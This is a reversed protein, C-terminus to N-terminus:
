EHSWLWRCRSQQRQQRSRAAGVLWWSRSARAVFRLDCRYSARESHRRYQRHVSRHRQEEEQQVGQRWRTCHVKCWLPFFQQIDLGVFFFLSISIRYKLALINRFLVMGGSFFFGMKWYTNSISFCFFFFFFFVEFYVFCFLFILRLVFLAPAVCALGFFLAGCGIIRAELFSFRFSFFFFLFFFSVHNKECIAFLFSFFFAFLLLLAEMRVTHKMLSPDGKSEGMPELLFLRRFLFSLFFFSPFLFDLIKTQKQFSLLFSFCINTFLYFFWCGVVLCM